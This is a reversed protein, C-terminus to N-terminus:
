TSVSTAVRPVGLRAPVLLAVSSQLQGRAHRVLSVHIASWVEAGLAKTIVDRLSLLWGDANNKGKGLFAFDPEIGLIMGSDSVGILLTGGNTNLFAAVTKTVEIKLQKQVESEAQHPQLM